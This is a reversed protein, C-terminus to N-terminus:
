AGSATAAADEARLYVVVRPRGLVEAARNAIRAAQKVQRLADRRIQDLAADVRDASAGPEVTDM